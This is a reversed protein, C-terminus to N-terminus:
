GAGSQSTLHCHNGPSRLAWSASLSAATDCVSSFILFAFLVSEMWFSASNQSLCSMVSKSSSSSATVPGTNTRRFLAARRGRILTGSACCSALAGLLHGLGLANRAFLEHTTSGASFQ